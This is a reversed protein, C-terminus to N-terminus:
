PSPEPAAPLTHLLGLTAWASGWFTYIGTAEKFSKAKAPASRDIQSIHTIDIPWGGDERQTTILWRQARAIAQATAPEDAFPQLAFLAQGTALVDSMNAAFVSSWGGDGRQRKIIENQIKEAEDPPGSHLGRPRPNM